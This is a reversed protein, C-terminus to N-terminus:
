RLLWNENQGKEGGEHETANKMTESWTSFLEFPQRYDVSLKGDKWTSNSLVVNLLQRKNRPTQMEFLKRAKAALELVQASEAVYSAPSDSRHEKIERQLRAEERNVSAALEDYMEPSIRNSLRDQYMTNLRKQIQVLEKDLRAAAELHFRRDEEANERIVSLAWDVFESPLTIRGIAEVYAAELMEEKVYKQSCEGRNRTCHYYVYRGKKIEGVLACGCHGCRILGSFALDNKVVRYRQSYRRDLVGQVKDWLEASILPTHIGVYRVGDWDFEGMYIRNHVIVQLTAKNVPRGSGRFTLGASKAWKALEKLSFNGTAYHEFCARVLEGRNPDPAIGRKNSPLLVNEYGIPAFSPWIGQSAKEIQGKRVEEKLNDIYNKAMLSKIGYIFKEASRSDKSIVSGEKIFHLERQLEEMTCYDKMNRHLRDTKETLIAYIEPHEVLFSVMEGFEERGSTKATEVDVFERVIEIGKEAAYERILKQQAPISFGEKEQEKSSVRVYSVGLKETPESVVKKVLKRKM